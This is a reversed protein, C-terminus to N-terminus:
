EVEVGIKELYKVGGLNHMHKLIWAKRQVVKANPHIPSRTRPSPLVAALAACEERTLADPTKDYYQKAAAKVGYIGEGMEAVNLYVELIREKGWVVEIALTFYVELGKRIWSRGGWLFVNKATQQSLTSAGRLRGGANRAEIAAEIEKLDFGKHTPFRQDEAALVALPMEQTMAELDCWDYHTRVGESYFRTMMLLTGPPNVRTYIGVWLFSLVVFLVGAVVSYKFLRWAWTKVPHPSSSVKAKRKAPRKKASAKRKAAPKKKAVAKKKAPSKKKASTKKKASAKKKAAAKKKRPAPSM